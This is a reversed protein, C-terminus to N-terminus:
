SWLGTVELGLRAVCRRALSPLTLDIVRGGVRARVGGQGDPNSMIEAGPGLAAKAIEVLQQELRAYEPHGHLSRATVVAESVLREYADREAGLVLSRAERRAQVVRHAAAGTAAREGEATARGIIERARDAATRGAATCQDQAGKLRAAADSSAAALLATELPSLQSSLRSDSDM